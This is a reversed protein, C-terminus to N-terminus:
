KELFDIIKDWLEMDQEHMKHFDYSKVFTAKEEDGDLEHRKMKAKLVRQFESKYKVAEETYQPHHNKNNVALFSINERKDLAARLKEFHAKFSCTKDDRSHIILTPCKSVKLSEIGDYRYYDPLANRELNYVTPRYLRLFGRLAQNQIAKPSTFGSIAVIRYVDPHLASINMASYGGWSHGIVSIESKEYGDLTRVFSVARGLDSLSQSFGGIGDGGSKLTGTHDYTFVTYGRSTLLDIEKLYSAHGCGMGHELLILKDTRKEGQYYLYAYLTQGKDGLFSYEDYSLGEFDDATFLYARGDPDRRRLLKRGYINLIKKEFIM